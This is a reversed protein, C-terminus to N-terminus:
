KEGAEEVGDIGLHWGALGDVDGEVVVGSVLVGLHTGPEAAM